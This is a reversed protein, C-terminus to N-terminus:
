LSIGLAIQYMLEKRKKAYEQQHSLSRSENLRSWSSWPGCTPSYWLHKPRHRGVFQFLAARGQVTSLDGNQYSFRFASKGLQQVQRTLQSNEGCMVEGLLWRSGLAPTQQLVNHLEQDFQSVLEYLQRTESHMATLVEEGWDERM